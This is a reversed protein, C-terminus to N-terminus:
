AAKGDQGQGKLRNVFFVQGKGTIKPTRTVRVSGDPNGVTREKVEFLGQEMARQTPMNWSEGRQRILFGEERLWEFLRKQGVLVGNQRLIKALDGVLISTRSTQVAEAFLVKGADEEVKAALALRQEREAKLDTALRIIFDPNLLAEEVKQPTLYGGHRRISPLVEHIIWGKFARAEPKDSRLILDYLGAETVVYASQSRGMSDIVEIQSLDDPDLRKVAMSPNSIGLVGCVDTAVFLPEGGEGQVVRVERGEYRFLEMANM